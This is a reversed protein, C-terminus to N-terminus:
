NSAARHSNAQNVKALKDLTSKVDKYKKKLSENPPTGYFAMVGLYNLDRRISTISIKFEKSAESVSHGGDELIFDAVSIARSLNHNCEKAM